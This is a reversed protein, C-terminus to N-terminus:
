SVMDWCLTHYYYSLYTRYSLVQQCLTANYREKSGILVSYYPPFRCQERYIRDVDEEICDVTTLSSNSNATSVNYSSIAFPHHNSTLLAYCDAYKKPKPGHFHLILANSNITWYPKWNLENPLLSVNKQLYDDIYHLILGQDYADFSWKHSTAYQLLHPMIQKWEPVNIIQVGTNDITDKIHEPGVSLIAPRYVLPNVDKLIM